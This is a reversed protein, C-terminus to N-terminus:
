DYQMDSKSYVNIGGGGNISNVFQGKRQGVKVHTYQTSGDRKKFSNHM